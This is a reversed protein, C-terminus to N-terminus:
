VLSLNRLLLTLSKSIFETNAKHLGTCLDVFTHFVCEEGQRPLISWSFTLGSGLRFKAAQLSILVRSISEFGSAPAAPCFLDCSLLILTPAGGAAPVLQQQDLIPHNFITHLNHMCISKGYRTTLGHM